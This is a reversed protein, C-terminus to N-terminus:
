AAAEAAKEDPSQPWNFSLPFGPLDTLDRLQQRYDAWAARLEDSIDYDPVQTYDSAALLRNRKDVALFAHIEPPMPSINFGGEDNPVFKMGAEFQEMQEPTIERWEDDGTIGARSELAFARGVVAGNKICLFQKFEEM